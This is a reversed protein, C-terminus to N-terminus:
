SVYNHTELLQKYENRTRKKSFSQRSKGEKLINDQRDKICAGETPELLNILSSMFIKSPHLITPHNLIKDTGIEGFL